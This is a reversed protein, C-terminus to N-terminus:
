AAQSSWRELIRVQAEIRALAEKEQQIEREIQTLEAKLIKQKTELGQPTPRGKLTGM